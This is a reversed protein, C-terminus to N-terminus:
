VSCITPLTLHTYSVSNLDEKKIVKKFIKEAEIRFKKAMIPSKGQTSIAIQVINEINILSPHSFDSIMPDDVAYGHCNMDKAKQYIKRNLLKDDTTGMIMIPKYKELFDLNSIKKKEFTIKKQKVYKEIEKNSEESFLLIKCDQTLLSRIKLMGEDGGGIVIVLEGKLYLDIIM